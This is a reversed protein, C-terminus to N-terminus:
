IVLLWVPFSQQHCCGDLQGSWGFWSLSCVVSFAGRGAGLESYLLLSYLVSLLLRSSLWSLSAGRRFCFVLVCLWDVLM